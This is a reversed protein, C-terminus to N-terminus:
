EGSPPPAWNSPPYSARRDVELEGRSAKKARALELVHAYKNKDGPDNPQRTTTDQDAM